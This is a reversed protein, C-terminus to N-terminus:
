NRQMCEITREAGKQMNFKGKWGLSYLKTADLVSDDMMSYGKTEQYSAKDMVVEGNVAIAFANAMEKISVVSEQNSINYAECSNGCLMTTLIATACDVVYCYSRRQHGDSKMVIKGTNIADRPFQSSARLDCATATPGYIHGPRVIVVNVNYQDHYSACMTECVVKASPYCARPNLIDIGCYDDEKYINLAGNKGYVESSSVYVVRTCSQSKAYELANHCGNISTMLVGCPDTAYKLTNAVGALHIFYDVKEDNPITVAEMCDYPVYIYDVNPIHEEFRKKIGQFDRGALFLRVGLSSNKNLMLLMDAIASGILGTCGTILVSKGKLEDINVINKKAEILDNTYIDSYKM